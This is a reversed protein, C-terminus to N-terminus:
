SQSPEPWLRGEPHAEGNHGNSKGSDQGHGNSNGYLEDMFLANTRIRGMQEYLYQRFDAVDIIGTGNNLRAYLLDERLAELISLALQKENMNMPVREVASLMKSSPMTTGQHLSIQAITVVKPLPYKQSLNVKSNGRAHARRSPVVEVSASGWSPVGLHGLPAHSTGEGM